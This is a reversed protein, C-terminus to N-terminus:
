ENFYLISLRPISLYEFAKNILIKKEIAEVIEKNQSVKSKEILSRGEKKWKEKLETPSESVLLRGLEADLPSIKSEIDALTIKEDMEFNELISIVTSMFTMTKEFQPFKEKAAIADAFSKKIASIFDSKRKKEDSPAYNGSEDGGVMAQRYEELTKLISEEAFSLCIAKRLPTKRKSLKEFYKKIGRKVVDLPIKASHWEVVKEYDLPSLLLPANRESCFADEIGRFYEFIDIFPKEKM